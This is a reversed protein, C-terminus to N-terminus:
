DKLAERIKGLLSAVTLPKQVFAVGDRLVGHHLIADDTYGSMYVVKLDPRQALVREALQRGNMDPMVVDTVLLHIVTSPEGSIAL